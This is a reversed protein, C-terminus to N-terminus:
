EQRKIGTMGSVRSCKLKNRVVMMLGAKGELIWRGGFM